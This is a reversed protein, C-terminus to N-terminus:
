SLVKVLVGQTENEDKDRDQLPIAPRLHPHTKPLKTKLFAFSFNLRSSLLFHHAFLFGKIPGNVVLFNLATAKHVQM